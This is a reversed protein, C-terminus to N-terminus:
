VYTHIYTYKILLLIHRICRGCLVTVGAVHFCVYYTVTPLSILVCTNCVNMFMDSAYNDTESDWVCKAGCRVGAGRQEGIYVQVIHKYRKWKMDVVYM